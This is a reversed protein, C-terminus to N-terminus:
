PALSAMPNLQTWFVGAAPGGNCFGDSAGAQKVWLYADVLGSSLGVPVPGLARGPPNCWEYPTSAGNGNRSTDIVFHKGGVLGSLETGYTTNIDTAVFGSTNLAFGDAIDIGASNLMKAIATATPWIPSGADLYVATNPALSKFTSVSDRILSLRVDIDAPSLCSADAAMSLADPEIIVVAKGSGIAQAISQVWGRYADPTIGGASYGGCDRSPINYTVFVPATGTSSAQSMVAAVDSAVQDAPGDLWVGSSQNAIKPMLSPCANINQAAGSYPPVFFSQGALPSDAHALCSSFFTLITLISFRLGDDEFDLFEMYLNPDIMQSIWNSFNANGKKQDMLRIDTGVRKKTVDEIGWVLYARDRGALISANACASVYKGVMEPNWNNRKFELWPREGSEQLLRALLSKPDLTPM